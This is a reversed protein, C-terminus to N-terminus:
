GCRDLIRDLIIHALENKALLSLPESSGDAYFLTVRNTDASFGSDTSGVINGAIM